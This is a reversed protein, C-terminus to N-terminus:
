ADEEMGADGHTDLRPVLIFGDRMEPAFTDLTREMGLPPGEDPRLPMGREGVGVAAQVREVNVRQLVDMHSLISSLEAALTTLRGPEVGLRALGAVHMVDEKSVAM